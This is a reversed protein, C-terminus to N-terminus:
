KTWPGMGISRNEWLLLPNVIKKAKKSNCYNQDEQPLRSSIYKKQKRRQAQLVSNSDM